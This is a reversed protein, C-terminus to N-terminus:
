IKKLTQKMMVLTEDDPFNAPLCPRLPSDFFRLSLLASSAHNRKGRGQRGIADDDCLLWVKVGM